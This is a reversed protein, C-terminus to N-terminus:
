IIKCKGNNIDNMIKKFKINDIKLGNEYIVNVKQNRGIKKPKTNVYIKSNQSLNLVINKNINEPVELRVQKGESLQLERLFDFTEKAKESWLIKGNKFDFTETGISAIIYDSTLEDTEPNINPNEDLVFRTEIGVLDYKEFILDNKIAFNYGFKKKQVSPYIIAEINKDSNIPYFLFESSLLSSFLYDRPRSRDVEYSFADIFFDDLLYFVEKLKTDIKPNLVKEHGIINCNIKVGKKRKWYSLTIVDGKKPKTEWYASAPNLACYLVQQSPMNCRGFNCYKTPPALIQSIETFCGLEIGQSKLINTNNSIRVLNEPSENTFHSSKINFFNQVDSKLKEFEVDNLDEIKGFLSRYYDLKEKIKESSNLNIPEQNTKNDAIKEIM